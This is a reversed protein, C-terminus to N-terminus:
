RSHQHYSSGFLIPLLTPVPIPVPVLHLPVPVLRIPVPVLALFLLRLLALVPAPSPAPLPRRARARPQSLRAPPLQPPSLWPPLAPIAPPHRACSECHCPFRLTSRFAS